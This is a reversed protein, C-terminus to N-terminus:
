ELVQKRYCKCVSHDGWPQMKKSHQTRRVKNCWAVVRGLKLWSSIKTEWTTVIDNEITVLNTAMTTRVEVDNEDNGFTKGQDNMTQNGYSSQDKWSKEQETLNLTRWVEQATKPQISKPLFMFGNNWM